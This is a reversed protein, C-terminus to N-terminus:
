EDEDGFIDAADAHASTERDLFARLRAHDVSRAAPGPHTQLELRIGLRALFRIVTELSFRRLDGRRIEAIRPPDTRLMSAADYVRWGELERVLAAAAQRKLEPIPDFGDLRRM